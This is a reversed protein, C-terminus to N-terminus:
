LIQLESKGDVLLHGEQNANESIIVTNKSCHSVNFALLGDSDVDVFIPISNHSITREIRELEKLKLSPGIGGIQNTEAVVALFSQQCEVHRVDQKIRMDAGLQCDLIHGVVPQPYPLYPIINLRLQLLLLILHHQLFLVLLSQNSCKPM